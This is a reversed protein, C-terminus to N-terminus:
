LRKSSEEQVEKFTLPSSLIKESFEDISIKRINVILAATSINIVIADIIMYNLSLGKGMKGFQVGM